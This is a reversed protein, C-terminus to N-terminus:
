GHAILEQIERTGISDIKERRVYHGLEPAYHWLRTGLLKNASGRSRLECSIPYTDFTGADTDIVTMEQVRCRWVRQKRHTLRRSLDFENRVEYFRAINGPVLPWLTDPKALVSTEGGPWKLRPLIPNRYRTELRGKEDQWTIADGAVDVVIDRSGDNFAYWSGEAYTPLSPLAPAQEDISAERGFLGTPDSCGSLSAALSCSLLLAKLPALTRRTMTIHGGFKEAQPADTLTAM